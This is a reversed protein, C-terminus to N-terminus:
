PTDTRARRSGPNSAARRFRVTTRQMTEQSAGNLQSTPDTAKWEAGRNPSNGALHQHVCGCALLKCSDNLHDTQTQDPRCRANGAGRRGRRGRQRRGRRTSKRRRGRRLEPAHRFAQERAASDPPASRSRPRYAHLGQPPRPTHRNARPAVRGRTPTPRGAQSCRRTPAWFRFCSRRSTAASPAVNSWNPNATAIPPLDPRRPPAPQEAM